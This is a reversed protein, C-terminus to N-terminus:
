AKGVVKYGKKMKERVVRNHLEDSRRLTTRKEKVQWQRGRPALKSRGWEAYVTVTHDPHQLSTLLYVKDSTGKRYHLKTQRRLTVGDVDHGENRLNNIIRDAIHLQTKEEVVKIEDGLRKMDETVTTLPKEVPTPTSALKGSRLMERMQELDM